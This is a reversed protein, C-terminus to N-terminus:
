CTKKIEQEVKPIAKCVANNVDISEYMGNNNKIRHIDVVNVFIDIHSSIAEAEFDIELGVSKGKRRSQKNLDKYLKDIPKLSM